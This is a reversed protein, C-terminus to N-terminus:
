TMVFDMHYTPLDAESRGKILFSKIYNIFYITGVSVLIYALCGSNAKISASM